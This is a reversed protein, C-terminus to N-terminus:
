KKIVSTRFILRFSLSLSASLSERRSNVQYYVLELYKQCLKSTLSLTFSSWGQSAGQPARNRFHSDDVIFYAMFDNWYERFIGEPIEMIPQQRYLCHLCSFNSIITETPGSISINVRESWRYGESKVTRMRSIWCIFPVQDEVQMMLRSIILGPCKNIFLLHFNFKLVAFEDISVILKSRLWTWINRALRLVHCTIIWHLTCYTPPSVRRLEMPCETGSFIYYDVIFYAM